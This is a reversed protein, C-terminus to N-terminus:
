DPELSILWALIFRCQWDVTHTPTPSPTPNPLVCEAPVVSNLLTAMQAFAVLQEETIQWGGEVRGYTARIVEATLSLRSLPHSFTHCLEFASCLKLPPLSPSVDHRHSILLDVLAPDDVAHTQIGM